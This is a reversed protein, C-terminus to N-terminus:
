LYELIMMSTEFVGIMSTQGTASNYGDTDDNDDNDDNDDDDEDNDGVKVYVVNGIREGEEEDSRNM